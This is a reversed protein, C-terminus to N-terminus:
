IAPRDAKRARSVSVANRSRMWSAISSISRYSFGFSQSRGLHKVFKSIAPRQSCKEFLVTHDATVVILCRIVRLSRIKVLMRRCLALSAFRCSRRMEIAIFDRARRNSRCHPNLKARSSAIPPNVRCGINLTRAVPIIQHMIFRDRNADIM